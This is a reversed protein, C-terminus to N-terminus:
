LVAMRNLNAISVISVLNYESILRLTLEPTLIWYFIEGDVVSVEVTDITGSLKHGNDTYTVIDGEAAKSKM